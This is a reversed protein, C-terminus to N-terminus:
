GAVGTPSLDGHRRGQHVAKPGAEGCRRPLVGCLSRLGCVTGQGGQCHVRLPVNPTNFLQSTRLANCINVNCNCIAFIKNEGDINTIQHVFGNDEARQLIELVQDYTVYHGKNTEVLYDAMDGVGICWDEADDGCGEGLKARSMRCSCPGAAYKGEYKKLWHSIHEVDVSQNETEIAKEVPIVHMGIGAGGPPVMATIKELPLFTMREFFKALEPHTDIQDKKM